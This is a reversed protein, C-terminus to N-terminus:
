PLVVPVTVTETPSRGVTLMEADGSVIISSPEVVSDQLEVPASVTMISWSIPTTAVAPM